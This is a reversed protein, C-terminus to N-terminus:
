TGVPIRVAAISRSRSPLAMTIANPVGCERPSTDRWYPSSPAGLIPNPHVASQVRLASGSRTSELDRTSRSDEAVARASVVGFLLIAILRIFTVPIPWSSQAFGQAFAIRTARSHMVAHPLCPGGPDGFQPSQRGKRRRQVRRMPEHEKSRTARAASHDRHRIKIDLRASAAARCADEPIQYRYPTEVQRQGVDPNKRDCGRNSKRPLPRAGGFRSGPEGTTLSRSLGSKANKCNLECFRTPDPCQGGHRFACGLDDDRAKGRIPVIGPANLPSSGELVQACATTAAKCPNGCLGFTRRLRSGPRMARYADSVRFHPSKSAAGDSLISFKMKERRRGCLSTTKQSPSLARDM